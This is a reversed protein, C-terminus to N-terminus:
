NFGGTGRIEVRSCAAPAILETLYQLTTEATMFHSESGSEFIYISAHYASNIEQIFSRKVSGTPVCIGLPGVEGNAWLSTVATVGCRAGLVHETRPVTKRLKSAKALGMRQAMEGEVISLVSQLRKGKM